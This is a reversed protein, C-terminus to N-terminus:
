RIYVRLAKEVIKIDFPHNYYLEGDLDIANLTLPNILFEKAKVHLINKRKLINGRYLNFLLRPFKRRKLKKIIILDLIGDNVLAPPCLKMGSAVVGNTSIGLFFTSLTQTVGNATVEFAYAKDKKLEKLLMKLYTSTKKKKLNNANEVLAIDLGSTAFCIAYRGGVSILDVTKPPNTKIFEFAKVPNKPVGLPYAYDNGTGTPIIGLTLASLNKFGNIIEHVTGDGGVAVIDTVGASELEAAIAEAHGKHQTTKFNYCVGNDNLYKKLLGWKAKSKGGGARENVIFHYM